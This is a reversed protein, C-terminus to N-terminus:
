HFRVPMSEYGRLLNNDAIVPAHVEIREVRPIMSTLIATMEMKALHMGACTHIGHGFAVHDDAKRRIRFVDPDGWKREDRNASAFMMLLRTNAPVTTDGIMTETPAFRTFARIPSEMRLAENIAGPILSPDARLADWETSNEGLLRILHGTAFITTDLSPGIYERMMMPCQKAPIDGREAAEYIRVAWGDPKLNGPVADNICFDYLEKIDTLAGRGRENMPGLTNFTAGAWRLMNARGHDPLGVLDSVVNLPLVHALDKMGDFLGRQCLGEILKDAQDAIRQQIVKLANPVLPASTIKRMQDHLPPDSTLSNGVIMRNMQEDVAVGFGSSFEKYNRLVQRVEDYRTVALLSHASLYVLPGLDRLMEYVPYPDAIVGDSYFDIDSIPVGLPKAPAVGNNGSIDEKQM